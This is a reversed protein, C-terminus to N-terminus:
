VNVRQLAQETAADFLHVRARDIKLGVTEGPTHMQRPPAKAMLTVGGVAVTYITEDGLPERLVIEGRLDADAESSVLTISESRVGFIVEKGAPLSVDELALRFDGSVFVGNAAIQGPVTNMPPSGIFTAVFLTQPHNYIELPTGVQQLVGLNMVAIRNSMSMAEIQDHTVYVTTTGLEQQLHKLEVRMDARLAADLNTLPEDMLFVQPQRVIARGLAVRQQEGAPLRNPRRKLVHEIRLRAAIESVRRDVEAKPVQAARLPFSINDRVSLHPYLAYFQFVFAIDRDGPQLTTVDREGIAITGSTPTELGAIMRLTTTKGCGSPGLLVLFEGDSISLDLHDVAPPTGASFQKVIDTLIVQSM